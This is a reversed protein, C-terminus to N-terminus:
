RQAGELVWAKLFNLAQRDRRSLPSSPPMTGNEVSRLLPSQALDQLNVSTMTETYDDLRPPYSDAGYHCSACHNKFVHDQVNKFNKPLRQLNVRQVLVTEEIEQCSTVELQAPNRELMKTSQFACASILLLIIYKM